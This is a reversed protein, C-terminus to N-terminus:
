KPCGKTGPKRRALMLLAGALGSALLVYVINVHFIRVALFVAAMIVISFVERQKIIGAAMKIVVDAIVAVVGAMMGNLVNRIIENDRFEFYFLSVLTLTILPPLVTGLVTVLSGPFGAMRFGVLVSANIAMAGPSAQAIATIDLMEKDDIWRYQEVFKKRMLPVIVYGGGFTFASLWFTSFFLKFYFKLDKKV